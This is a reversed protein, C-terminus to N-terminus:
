SFSEQSLDDDRTGEGIETDNAGWPEMDYGIVLPLALMCFM